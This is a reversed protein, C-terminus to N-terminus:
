PRNPVGTSSRNKRAAIGATLGAAASVILILLVTAYAPIQVDLVILALIAVIASLAAAAAGM